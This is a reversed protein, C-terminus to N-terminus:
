KALEMRLIFQGREETHIQIARARTVPAEAKCRVTGREWASYEVDTTVLILNLKGAVRVHSPGGGYDEQAHPHPETLAQYVKMEEANVHLVMDVDSEPTPTGYVQSGTLLARM